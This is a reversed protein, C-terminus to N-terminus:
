CGAAGGISSWGDTNLKCWGELPPEWAIKIIEGQRGTQEEPDWKRQYEQLYQKVKKGADWPLAWDEEHM